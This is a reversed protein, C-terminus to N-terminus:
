SFALTQNVHFEGLLGVHVVNDAHILLPAEWISGLPTAHASRMVPAKPGAWHAYHAGGKLGM